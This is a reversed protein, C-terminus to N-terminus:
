YGSLTGDLILKYDIATNLGRGTLKVSYDISMDSIKTASRDDRFKQNLKEILDAVGPDSSDATVTSTWSHQRLLDAIQGGEDYEIFITRQYIMVFDSTISDPNIKASLQAAWAPTSASLIILTVLLVSLAVVKGSM